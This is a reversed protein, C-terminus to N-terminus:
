FEVSLWDSGPRTRCAEAHWVHGSLAAPPSLSGSPGNLARGGGQEEETNTWVQVLILNNISTVTKVHFYEAVPKLGATLSDKKRRPWNSNVMRTIQPPAVTVVASSMSPFKPWFLTIVYSSSSTRLKEKKEFELRLVHKVGVHDDTRLSCSHDSTM